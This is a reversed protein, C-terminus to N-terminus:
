GALKAATQTEYSSLEPHQHLDLYLSHAEPYVAETEQSTSSSQALASASLAAILFFHASGFTYQTSKM